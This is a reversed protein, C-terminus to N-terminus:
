CPTKERIILFRKILGIFVRNYRRSQYFKELSFSFINFPNHEILLIILSATGIAIQRYGGLSNNQPHIQVSIIVDEFIVSTTQSSEHELM